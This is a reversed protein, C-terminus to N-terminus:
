SATHYWIVRSRSEMKKQFFPISHPESSFCVSFHQHAVRCWPELDFVTDETVAVQQSQARWRRSWLELMKM